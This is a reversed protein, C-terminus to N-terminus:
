ENKRARKHKKSSKDIWTRKPRSQIEAKYKLLNESKKIDREAQLIEKEEKEEELIEKILKDKSSIITHIKEVKQWDVTRSLAQNSGTKDSVNKKNKQKKNKNKKNKDQLDKSSEEISKIAEKVISRDSTTEGVFSISRGERGARATRGVRHLYIEYSKPMDFNIVFEIKPIDIGRAALDTCILVPVILKKFDTVNKLRQEQSLSGHLESVKMGLLGLIIRLRHAMEKRAVFVVIRSQQKSDISKLINFLLAPKFDSRKRIRVFEQILKNSAHKPPDIMIRVPKDLSLQILDKIRSNMTASFLLTQRKKPLLSLIETLEKQFGEELMRDAEDVILVEVNDVYFSTSNRIHDIIRGPTAIVIDPRKKLEQEQQRLNLGGVALGFTLNNVFRTLKNGVDAVQIALERTPALVIVRITPIRSNKFLLREIIPILYAATKGSGTVAGAVIDKGMLAIPITASQIPTPLTYGLAALGKLVPRSLQLSNFAKHVTNTAEKSEEKSAFFGAIQEASDKEDDDEQNKDEMKIEQELDEESENTKDEDEDEDEDEVKAEIRVKEKSKGKGKDKDKDQEQEQEQNKNEQNDNQETEDDGSESDSDDKENKKSDNKEQPKQDNEQEEEDDSAILNSMLGGKQRIIKDLDVEKRLNVEETSNNDNQKLDFDWGEFKNSLIGDDLAFMFNPNLDKKSDKNDDDKEIELQNIDNKTKKKKSNAKKSKSKSKRPKVTILEFLEDKYDDLDSDSM